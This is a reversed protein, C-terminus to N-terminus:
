IMLLTLLSATNLVSIAIYELQLCASAPGPLVLAETQSLEQVTTWDTEFLPVDKKEVIQSKKLSTM